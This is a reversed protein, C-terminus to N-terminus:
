ADYPVLSRSMISNFILSELNPLDCHTILQLIEDNNDEEITPFWELSLSDMRLAQPVAFFAAAMLSGSGHIEVSQWREVEGNLIYMVLLAKATEMGDRLDSLDVNINLASSRSRRLWQRLSTEDCHKLNENM